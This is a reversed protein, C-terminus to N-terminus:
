RGFRRRAPGKPWLDGDVVEVPDRVYISRGGPPWEQEQELEVGRARRVGTDSVHRSHPSRDVIRRTLLRM